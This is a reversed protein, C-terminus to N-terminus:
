AGLKRIRFILMGFIYAVMLIFSLMAVVIMRDTIIAGIFLVISLVIFGVIVKLQTHLWNKVKREQEKQVAPDIPPAAAPTPQPQPQPKPQPQPPPAPRTVPPSEPPKEVPKEVPATTVTPAGAPSALRERDYQARKEPSSLIEFALNLSQMRLTALPDTSQDPHVVLALRRYAARVEDLSAGPNVQLVSYYDTNEM